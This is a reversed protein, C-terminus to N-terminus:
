SVCSFSKFSKEHIMQKNKRENFEHQLQKTFNVNKKIREM